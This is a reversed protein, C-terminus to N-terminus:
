RYLGKIQGWSKSEVSVTGCGEGLAGILGCGLPDAPLCPSGTRLTLDYIAPDCFLPDVERDTPSLPIGIGEPNNWYVNCSTQVASELDEIAAGGHSAAIINNEFTGTASSHFQVAGGAAVNQTKYNGFFTNNRILLPASGTSLGGGQGNGGMAGNEIFICNEVIKPGLGLGLAGPGVGNNVNGKFLCGRILTQGTTLGVTVAGSGVASTNNLFQCDVLATSVVGGGTEYGYVSTNHCDRIVCNVLDLHGDTFWVAGASSAKCNSFETDYISGNGVVIVAGGVSGGGEFDKLVCSRITLNGCQWDYAGLARDHGNINFGEVTTLNSPLFRAIIGIASPGSIIDLDIFTVAAGSESKLLVADKLFACSTWLGGGSLVRTEYDRYTGPAVLVTDGAQAADIGAQITPYDAPVHLTAAQASSALLAVSCLLTAIKERSV